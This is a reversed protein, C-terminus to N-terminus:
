ELGSFKEAALAHILGRSLLSRSFRIAYKRSNPAIPEILHNEKMRALIRSREAPIKGPTLSKIDSAQFPVNAIAVELIKAELETIVKRELSHRVAPRLIREALFGYELLKDIKTLEAQLGELVYECWGLLAGDAGSDAAALKDYYKNRDACFVASPNLIRGQGVDFAKAVLMAYTLLRVVRGNGNTFPHIWAFRHHALAIRILDYVPDQPANIFEFFEDLYSQVQAGDPPTHSSQTIQVNGKRYQGPTKDGERKLDVVVRKHLERVFASSITSGPTINQEIFSMVGEINLIERLDERESSEEVQADVAEAITTRNGEIRASEISELLHFFQKLQFFIPPPTTGGLRQRRLYQLEFVTRTLSSDYPPTVLRLDIHKFARSM